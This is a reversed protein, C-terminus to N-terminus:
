KEVAGVNCSTRVHDFEDRNNITTKDICDSPDGAGILPGLPPWTLHHLITTPPSVPAIFTFTPAFVANAAQTLATTPCSGGVWDVNQFSAAVDLFTGDGDCNRVGPLTWAISNSFEITSGPGRATLQTIGSNNRITAGHLSVFADDAFIAAGAGADDRAPLAASDARNLALTSNIIGVITGPGFYAAGGVWAQNKTVNIARLTV